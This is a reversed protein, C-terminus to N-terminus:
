EFLLQETRQVMREVSFETVIRERVLNRIGADSELRDLMREMADSLAEADRPPAIEGLKDVIRASDGVDTVVCPVGCSMAEGIANPFGEGFASSSCSIDLASYIIPMDQRAGAWIVRGALGLNEAIVELSARYSASGSGVCVFRLNDRKKALLACAQLFNRHDKMVDLRAVLGILRQNEKVGWGDRIRQGGKPDPHFLVTDIGNEVVVMRTAKFGRDNAWNEGARSNAIALDAVRSLVTEFRSVVRALWDYHQLEMGAARVGWILRPRGIWPFLLATLINPVDLFSYIMAPRLKRLIRVLRTLFGFVDWRGRKNVFHVYVGATVLEDDFAGDSYFLVVHVDHGKGKLAKALVVLQREAGGQDLKRSLLILRNM